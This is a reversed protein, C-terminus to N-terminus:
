PIDRNRRQSRVEFETTPLFCIYPYPRAFSSTWSARNTPAALHSMTYQDFQGDKIRTDRSSMLDGIVKVPSPYEAVVRQRIERCDLVCCCSFLYAWGNPQAAAPKADYAAAPVATRVASLTTQLENMSEVEVAFLALRRTERSDIKLRQM